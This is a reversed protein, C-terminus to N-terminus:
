KFISEAINRFSHGDMNEKAKEVMKMSLLDTIEATAQIAAQIIPGENSQLHDKVAPAIKEKMFETVIQDVTDPVNWRYTEVINDIMKERVREAIRDGNEVLFESLEKENM